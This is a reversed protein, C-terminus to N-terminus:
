RDRRAIYYSKEYIRYIKGNELNVLYEKTQRKIQEHTDYLTRYHIRNDYYDEKDGNFVTNTIKHRYWTYRKRYGLLYEEEREKSDVKIANRLQILLQLIKEM